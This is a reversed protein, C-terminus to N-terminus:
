EKDSAAIELADDTCVPYAHSNEEKCVDERVYEEQVRVKKFATSFNLLYIAHVLSKASKKNAVYWVAIVVAVVGIAIAIGVLAGLFDVLVDSLTCYRGPTFYQIFESVLAYVLSLVVSSPLSAWKRRFLLFTTGFLGFGLLASLGAHGMLKRVFEYSSSFLEVSVTKEAYVSPDAMSSCRITVDGFTKAVLYGSKSIEAKGSVVEWVVFSSEGCIYKFHSNPSVTDNGFIEIKDIHPPLVTVTLTKKVDPNYRSSYTVNATGLAQARLSGDYVKLVSPNDSVVCFDNLSGQIFTNGNHTSYIEFEPVVDNLSVDAPPTFDPNNKVTVVCSASIDEDFYATITAQGASIGFVKGEEVQAVSTDSSVYRKAALPSTQGGNVSVKKSTGVKIDSSIEMVNQDVEEPNLGRCGVTIECYVEPNSKLTARLVAGWGWKKFTIVGNQDVDAYSDDSIAYEVDKDLTNQPSFIIPVKEQAGAFRIIGENEFRMYQTSVNKGIQQDLGFKDNLKQTVGASSQGSREGDIASAGWLGVWLVITLVLAVIAVARVFEFYKREKKPMIFGWFTISSM